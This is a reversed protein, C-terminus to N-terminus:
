DFLWLSAVLVGTIKLKGANPRGGVPPNISPNIWANTIDWAPKSWILTSNNTELRINLLCTSAVPEQENLVCVFTFGNHLTQLVHSDLGPNDQLQIYSVNHHPRLLDSLPEHSLASSAALDDRIASFSYAPQRSAYSIFSALDNLSDVEDNYKDLDFENTTSATIKAPSAPPGKLFITKFIIKFRVAM